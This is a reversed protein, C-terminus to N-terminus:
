SPPRAASGWGSSCGPSATAGHDLAVIEGDIVFDAAAQAALAAETGPLDRHRGEPQPDDAATRVREATPPPLTATWSREYM